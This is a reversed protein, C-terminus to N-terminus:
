ACRCVSPSFEDSMADLALDGIPNAGPGMVLSQAVLAHLCKVRVPMGGASVASVHEEDDGVLAAIRHRFARYLGHARVYGSRLEEDAALRDNFRRMVGDAELHSAAKVASPGTLYCTTPFPVGGPLLPRTIVALPRGCVCRAGVALMGRPFRGLQSHVISVDEQSARHDLIHRALEAM